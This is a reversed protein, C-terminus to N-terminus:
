GSWIKFWGYGKAKKGGVGFNELGVVLLREALDLLYDEQSHELLDSGIGFEFEVGAKVTLFTIPVPSLWDAPPSKKQYYESYHPNMIDIEFDKYPNFSTPFADLFIIEGRKSQSGFLRLFTSAPDKIEMDDFIVKVSKLLTGAKGEELQKELKQIDENTHEALSLLFVHRALGKLTNGSIYPIGYVHHFLFGVEIISPNGGGIFLRYATKARFRRKALELHGKPIKINGKKLTDFFKNLYDMNTREQEVLLSLLKNFLLGANDVERLLTKIEKLKM